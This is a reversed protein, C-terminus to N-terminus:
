CMSTQSWGLPVADGPEMMGATAAKNWRVGLRFQPKALTRASWFDMAILGAQDNCVSIRSHERAWPLATVRFYLFFLGGDPYSTVKRMNSRCRTDSDTEIRTRPAIMNESSPLDDTTARSRSGAVEVILHFYLM